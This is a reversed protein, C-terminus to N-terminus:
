VEYVPSSGMWIMVKQIEGRPSVKLLVGEVAIVGGAGRVVSVLLVDIKCPAVAALGEEEVVGVSRVELIL